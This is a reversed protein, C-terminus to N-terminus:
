EKDRGLVHTGVKLVGTNQGQPNQTLVSCRRSGGTTAVLVPGRKKGLGNIMCGM